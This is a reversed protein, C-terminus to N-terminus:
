LLIYIHLYASVCIQVYRERCQKGLRGPIERAIKSWKKVGYKQVLQIQKSDDEPTWPGKYQGPKLVKQWRHLCQVDSREGKFAEYSIRKWSKGHNKKVAERQREDQYLIIISYITYNKLVILYNCLYIISCYM